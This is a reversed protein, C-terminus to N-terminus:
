HSKQKKCFTQGVGLCKLVRQPKVFVVGLCKLVRQPKVFVVGLCKLVRQPKVFVVGLCKSVRQPKVFVVGLCKSVRQPKVFVVGLCKSVRQPKVLVFFTTKERCHEFCHTWRGVHHIGRGFYFRVDPTQSPCASHITPVKSHISIALILIGGVLPMKGYTGKSCNWLNQFYTILNIWFLLIRYATGIM